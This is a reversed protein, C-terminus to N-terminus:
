RLGSDLSVYVQITISIVVDNMDGIDIDATIAYGVVIVVTWHSEIRRLDIRITIDQPIGLAPLFLRNNRELRPIDSTIYSATQDFTINAAFTLFHGIKGIIRTLYPM